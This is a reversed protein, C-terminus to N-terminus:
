LHLPSHPVTLTSFCCFSFCFLKFDLHFYFIFNLFYANFLLLPEFARIEAPPIPRAVDHCQKWDEVSVPSTGRQSTSTSFPVFPLIYTLMKHFMWTLKLFLRMFNSFVLALGEKIWPSLQGTSALWRNRNGRLIVCLCKSSFNQPM